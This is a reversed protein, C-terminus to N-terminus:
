TTPIHKSFYHGDKRTLNDFEIPRINKGYRIYSKDINIESNTGGSKLYDICSNILKILQEDDPLRDRKTEIKILKYGRRKLYYDRSRERKVFDEESINGFKVQLNHGGGNYEIVIDDLLIDINYKGIPYNLEGGVLNHIYCQQRSTTVNGNAHLSERGKNRVEENLFSYPVGYREITTDIQKQRIEKNQAPHEVGHRELTTNIRKQLIDKNASVNEFGYRELNTAKIKEKVEDLQLTTKVGYKMMCIEESKKPKCDKCSSKQIEPNVELSRTYDAMRTQYEKGCYDCLVKVLYHSKKSIDTQKVQFKDGIRTFVYGKNTYIHKGRRTWEIEITENELLLNIM